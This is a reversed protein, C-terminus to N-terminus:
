KVSMHNYRIYQSEQSKEESSNCGNRDIHLLRTDQFRSGLYLGLFEDHDFMEEPGVLAARGDGVLLSSPGVLV